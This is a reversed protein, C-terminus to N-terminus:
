LVWSRHRGNKIITRNRTTKYVFRNEQKNGIGGDGGTVEWSWQWRLGQACTKEDEKIRTVTPVSPVVIKEARFHYVCQPYTYLIIVSTYDRQFSQSTMNYYWTTPLYIDYIIYLKYANEHLCRRWQRITSSTYYCIEKRHSSCATQKTHM